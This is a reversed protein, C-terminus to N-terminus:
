GVKPLRGPRALPVDAWPDRIYHRRTMAASTHGLRAQADAPEDTASKARVDRRQFRPLSPDAERAARAARDFRQAFASYTLPRGDETQILHPGSVRRPRTTLEDLVARLDGEIAIRVRRGTKTNPPRLEDGIIHARTLRLVDSVRQGCVVALRCWDRVVQDGHAAVAMLMEDTVLVTRAPLKGLSVGASPDTRETLGVHIARAWVRRLTGLMAQQWHPRDDMRSLMMRVHMPRLADLRTGGLTEDWRTLHKRYAKVTEDSLAGALHQADIHTRYQTSAASWTATAAQADDSARQAITLAARRLDTGLARGQADYYRTTGNRTRAYVGPPLNRRDPRRPRGAPAM